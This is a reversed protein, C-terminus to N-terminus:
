PQSWRGLISMMRNLVSVANSYSEMRVALKRHVISPVIFQKDLPIGLEQWDSQSVKCIAQTTFVHADQTESDILVAYVEDWGAQARKFMTANLAEFSLGWIEQEDSNVFKIEENMKSVKGPRTSAYRLRLEDLQREHRQNACLLERIRFDGLEWWHKKIEM